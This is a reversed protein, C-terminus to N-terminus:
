QGISNSISAADQPMTRIILMYRGANQIAFQGYVVLELISCWFSLRDKVEFGVYAFSFWWAWSRRPRWSELYGESIEDAEAGWFRALVKFLFSLLRLHVMIRLGSCCLMKWCWKSWSSYTATWSWAVFSHDRLTWIMLFYTAGSDYSRVLKLSHIDLKRIRIIIRREWILKKDVM